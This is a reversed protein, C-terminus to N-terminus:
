GNCMFNNQNLLNAASSFVNKLNERLPPLLSKVKSINDMKEMPQQQQQQQQPPIMTSQMGPPLQQPSQQM